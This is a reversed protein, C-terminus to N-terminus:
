SLKPKDGEPLLTATGSLGSNNQAELKVTIADDLALAPSSSLAALLLMTLLRSM